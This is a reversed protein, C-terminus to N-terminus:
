QVLENKLEASAQELTAKAATTFLPFAQDFVAPLPPRSHCQKQHLVM